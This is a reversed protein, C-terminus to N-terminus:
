LETSPSVGYHERINCVKSTGQRPRPGSAPGSYVTTEFNGKLKKAQERLKGERRGILITHKFQPVFIKSIAKGIIGYSGIIALILNKPKKNIFNLSKIAAQCTVAATYSDGHTIYGTYDKQGLLWTGGKTVSTTLAGLQILEVDLQDQAYLMVKLILRRIEDRPAYIIDKPLKKLGLIYGKTDNISIEPSVIFDKKIWSDSIFKIDDKNILHSLTAFRM